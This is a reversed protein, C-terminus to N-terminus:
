AFVPNLPEAAIEAIYVPIEYKRAATKKAVGYKRVLIISVARITEKVTPTIKIPMMVKKPDTIEPVTKLLSKASTVLM